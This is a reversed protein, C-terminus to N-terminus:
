ASYYGVDPSFRKLVDQVETMGMLAVSEDGLTDTSADVLMGRITDCVDEDPGEVDDGDTPIIYLTGDEDVLWQGSQWDPDEVYCGQGGAGENDYPGM